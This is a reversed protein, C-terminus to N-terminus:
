IGPRAGMVGVARAGLEVGQRAAEVLSAGGLWGTLFGACFADGAGTPDVVDVSPAAVAEMRGDASGALVGDRGLKLAVTPYHALMATLLARPDESVDHGTLAAAEDRNPLCLTAGETWALFDAAGVERLFACSAPDVSVPVGHERARALVDLVVERPGPALLSYGSVHLLRVDGFPDAPVDSPQLRLNAGRDVFMSRSGDGGVLVVITGTALDPDGALHAEVGFRELAAAHRAVDATGVRAVLRVPMGLSALWAAQNAASGGPVQAIAARTDSDRTMPELPRVVVDDIVDGVILIVGGRRPSGQLTAGSMEAAAAATTM